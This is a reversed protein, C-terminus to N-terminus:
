ENVEFDTIIFVNTVKEVDVFPKIVAYNSIGNEEPVIREVTGIM